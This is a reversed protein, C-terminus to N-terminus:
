YCCQRAPRHTSRGHALVLVGIVAILLRLTVSSTLYNATKRPNAGGLQILAMDFGFMGFSAVMMGLGMAWSFEGFGDPGLVRTAVAFMGFSALKGVIEAVAFLVATRSRYGASRSGPEVEPTDQEVRDKGAAGSAQGAPGSEQVM